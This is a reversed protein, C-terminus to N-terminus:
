PTTRPVCNEIFLTAGGRASIDTGDLIEANFTIRLDVTTGLNIIDDQSIPFFTVSGTSGAKITASIAKVRDFETGDAWTYHISADAIFVDNFPSTTADATKPVNELSATWETVTCFADPGITCIELAPCDSDVICTVAPITNTCVGFGGTIAPNSIGLVELVVNGTDPDDLDSDTCAATTLLVMVLLSVWLLKSREM